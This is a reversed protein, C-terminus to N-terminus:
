RITLHSYKSVKSLITIEATQIISKVSEGEPLEAQSFFDPVSERGEALQQKFPFKEEMLQRIREKLALKSKRECLPLHEEYFSALDGEWQCGEEKNTCHVFVSMVEKRIAKDPWYDDDSGSRCRYCCRNGTKRNQYAKRLLLKCRSCLLRDPTPSLPIVDHGHM